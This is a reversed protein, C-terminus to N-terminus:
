FCKNACGTLSIDKKINTNKKSGSSDAFLHYVCAFMRGDDYDGTEHAAMKGCLLFSDNTSFLNWFM